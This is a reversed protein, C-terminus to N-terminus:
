VIKQKKRGTGMRKQQIDLGAQLTKKKGTRSIQPAKRIVRAKKRRVTKWGSYQKERETLKCSKRRGWRAQLHVM